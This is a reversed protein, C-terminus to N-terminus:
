HKKRRNIFFFLLTGVLIAFILSILIIYKKNDRRNLKVMRENGAKDVAKVMIESQLLQDRLLYPSETKKWSPVKTNKIKLPRELVEYYDIGTEKDITAFSIFYQNGFVSPDRSLKIEFPLPPTKDNKLLQQWQDQSPKTGLVNIIASKTKLAAETGKGDNLLVKTDNGIKIEAKGNKIVKFVISIIKGEKGEYGGPKGGSFYVIGKVASPPNTWLELVSNGTSIEKVELIDAPYIIKTEVANIAENQTDLILNEIFVDGKAHSSQQPEFYLNAAFVFNFDLFYFISFLVSFSLLLFLINKKNFAM